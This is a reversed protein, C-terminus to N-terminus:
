NSFDFANTVNLTGIEPANPVGNGVEITKTVTLSTIGIHYKGEADVTVSATGNSLADYRTASNTASGVTCSVVIVKASSDESRMSAFDNATVVNYNGAGVDAYTFTLASGSFDGNSEDEETTIVLVGFPGDSTDGNGQSSVGGEYEFDNFQWTTEETTDIPIFDDDSGGGCAVLLSFASLCAAFILYRNTM